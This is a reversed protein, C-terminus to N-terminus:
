FFISVLTTDKQTVCHRFRGKVDNQIKIARESLGESQPSVTKKVEKYEIQTRNIKLFLWM